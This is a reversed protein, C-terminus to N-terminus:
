APEGQNDSHVVPRPNPKARKKSLNFHNVEIIMARPIFTRGRFYSDYYENVLTIGDTDDLLVWGLTKVVTPKHFLSLNESDVVDESGTNADSWTVLALPYSHM